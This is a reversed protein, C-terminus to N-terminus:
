PQREAPWAGIGDDHIHCRACVWVLLGVDVAEGLEALGCGLRAPPEGEKVCHACQDPAAFDLAPIFAVM